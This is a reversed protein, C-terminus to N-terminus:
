KPFTHFHSNLNVRFHWLARDVMWCLWAVAVLLLHGCSCALPRRFLGPVLVIASPTPQPPCFLSHSSCPPSLTLPAQKKLGPFPCHQNCYCWQCGIGRKPRLGSKWTWEPKLLCFQHLLDSYVWLSLLPKGPLPVFPGELIIEGRWWICYTSQHYLQLPPTPIYIPNSQLNNWLSILCLLKVKRWVLGVYDFKRVFELEADEWKKRQLEKAPYYHSM